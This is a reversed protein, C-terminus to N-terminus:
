LNEMKTMNEKQLNRKEKIESVEVDNESEYNEEVSIISSLVTILDDKKLKSINKVNNEKALERLEVLTMDNLNPM